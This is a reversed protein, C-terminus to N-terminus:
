AKAKAVERRAIDHLVADTPRVRYKVPCQVKRQGEPVVRVENLQPSVLNAQAWMVLMDEALILLNNIARAMEEIIPLPAFEIKGNKELSWTAERLTSGERTFNKVVLQSSQPHEVGDRMLPLHEVCAKYQRIFTTNVHKDGFKSSILEQVSPRGKKGKVWESADEYQTGWLLNVLKL